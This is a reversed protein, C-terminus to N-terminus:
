KRDNEAKQNKIYECIRQDKGDRWQVTCSVYSSHLTDIPVTNPVYQIKFVNAYTDVGNLEQTSSSRGFTPVFDDFYLIENEISLQSIIGSSLVDLNTGVVGVWALM